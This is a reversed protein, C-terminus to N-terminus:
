NIELSGILESTVQSNEGLISSVAKVRCSAELFPSKFATCSKKRRPLLAPSPHAGPSTPHTSRNTEESWATTTRNNWDAQEVEVERDVEIRRNLAFFFNGVQLVRFWFLSCAAPGHVSLQCLLQSVVVDVQVKLPCRHMLAVWLPDWVPPFRAFQTLEVM